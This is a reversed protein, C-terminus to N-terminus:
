EDNKQEKILREIEIARQVKEYSYKDIIGESSQFTTKGIKFTGKDLNTSILDIWQDFLIQNISEDESNFSDFYDENVQVLIDKGLIVSYQDPIKTLKILQKLKKNSQFYFNLSIAINFNSLRENFFEVIYDELETYTQEKTLKEKAM